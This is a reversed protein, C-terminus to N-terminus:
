LECRPIQPKYDEDFEDSSFGPYTLPAAVRGPTIVRLNYRGVGSRSPSVTVNCSDHISSRKKKTYKKTKVPSPTFEIDTQLGIDTSSFCKEDDSFFTHSVSREYSSKLELLLDTNHQTQQLLM